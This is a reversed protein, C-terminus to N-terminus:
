RARAPCERASTAVSTMATSSIPTPTPATTVFRIPPVDFGLEGAGDSAVVLEVVNDVAGLRLTTEIEGCDPVM